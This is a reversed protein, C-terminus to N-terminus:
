SSYPSFILLVVKRPIVKINAKAPVAQVGAAVAMGAVGIGVMATGTVPSVVLGEITIVAVDGTASAVDVAAAVITPDGEASPV